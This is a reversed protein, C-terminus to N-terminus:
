QLSEKNKYFNIPNLLHGFFFLIFHVFTQWRLKYVIKSFSDDFTKTKGPKSFSSNINHIRLYNNPDEFSENNTHSLKRITLDQIRNSYKTSSFIQTRPGPDRPGPDRPGQTRPDRPGQTGPDRPGQTGPDRPGQTGPDRPGQTGPDRPGLYHFM